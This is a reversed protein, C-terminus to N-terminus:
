RPSSQSHALTLLDQQILLMLGTPYLMSQIFSLLKCFAHMKQLAQKAKQTHKTGSKKAKKQAPKKVGGNTGKLASDNVPAPSTRAMAPSASASTVSDTATASTKARLQVM